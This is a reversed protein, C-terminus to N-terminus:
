WRKLILKSASDFNMIDEYDMNNDKLIDMFYKDCCEIDIRDLLYDIKEKDNLSFLYLAFVRGLLYLSAKVYDDDKIIKNMDDEYGEILDAIKIAHEYLSGNFEGQILKIDDPCIKHTKLYDLFFLETTFPRTEQTLSIMKKIKKILPYNRTLNYSYIHATEHALTIASSITYSNQFIIYSSFTLYSNYSAGFLNEGIVCNGPTLLKKEKFLGYLIDLFKQNYEDLFDTCIDVSKELSVYQKPVYNYLKYTPYNEYFNLIVNTLNKIIEYSDSLNKVMLPDLKKCFFDDVIRDDIDYIPFNEVGTEACIEYLSELDLCLFPYISKSKNKKLLSITKDIDHLIAKEYLEM